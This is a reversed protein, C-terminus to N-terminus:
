AKPAFYAPENGARWKINCGLSAKQQPSVPKGALVADVAARLDAGTLDAGPYADGSGLLGQARSSGGALLGLVCAAPVAFTHFSTKM